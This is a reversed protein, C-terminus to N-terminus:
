KSKQISGHFLRFSDPVTGDNADTILVCFFDFGVLKRNQELGERKRSLFTGSSKKIRRKPYVDQSKPSIISDLLKTKTSSDLGSM